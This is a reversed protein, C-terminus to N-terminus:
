NYNFTVTVMANANGATISSATQIYHARWQPNYSGSTAATTVTFMQNLQIINNNKDVMQIGVGSASNTGPSLRITSSLSPDVDASVTAKITSDSMPCIFNLDILTDTTKSGIGSLDNTNWIGLNVNVNSNSVTCPAPVVGGSQTKFEVFRQGGITGYGITGISLQGASINGIKILKISYTFDDYMGFPRQGDGRDDGVCYDSDGFLLTSGAPGCASSGNFSPISATYTVIGQIGVGPINTTYVHSGYASLTSYAGTFAFIMTDGATCGGIQGMTGSFNQTNLTSGIAENGTITINSFNLNHQAPSQYLECSAWLKGCGSFVLFLSIVIYLYAKSSIKM